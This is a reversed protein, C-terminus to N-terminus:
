FPGNFVSKYDLGYYPQGTTPNMYFHVQFPGSPSNFTGTSFKALGQPILPNSLQGPRIIQRSGAIAEPSLEGTPTFASKAEEMLLQGKLRIASLASEAGSSIAAEAGGVSPLEEEIADIDAEVPGTNGMDVAAFVAPVLGVWPNRDVWDGAKDLPAAVYNM